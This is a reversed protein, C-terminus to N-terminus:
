RSCQRDFAVIRLTLLSCQDDFEGSRSGSFIVVLQDDVPVDHEIPSQFEDEQVSVDGAATLGELKEHTIGDFTLEVFDLDLPQGRAQCRLDPEVAVPSPHFDIAGDIRASQAVVNVVSYVKSVPPQEDDTGALAIPNENTLFCIANVDGHVAVFSAEVAITQSLDDDTPASAGVHDYQVRAESKGGYEASAIPRVQDDTTRHGIHDEAAPPMVTQISPIAVVCDTPGSVVVMNLTSFAAVPQVAARSSVCQGTFISRVSQDAALSRISEDAAVSVVEEIAPAATISEPAASASVQQDASGLRVGKAAPWVTIEQNSAARCEACGSQDSDEFFPHGWPSQGFSDGVDSALRAAWRPM